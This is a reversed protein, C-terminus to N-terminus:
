VGRVDPGWLIKHLQVQVRVSLGDELIWDALERPYLKGWVPSFLITHQRDLALKHIWSRAWEYDQRSGVVFKIEDHARLCGLNEWRVKDVMGSGPCKIDYILIARPDVPGIDLSGGTEVLVTKEEELLEKILPHVAKQLLPEGGTIEVLNTPYGNVKKVIENLSWRRGEYFAYETDCYSCRLNCNALRVFACPVGAYTSEGQISFFIENIILTKDM